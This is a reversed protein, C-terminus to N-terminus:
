LERGCHECTPRDARTETECYPCTLKVKGFSIRGGAASGRPPRLGGILGMVILVAVLLIIVLEIVGLGM